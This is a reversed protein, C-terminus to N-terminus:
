YYLIVDVFPIRPSVRLVRVKGQFGLDTFSVMQTKRATADYEKMGLTQSPGIRYYSQPPAIGFTLPYYSQPPDIYWTM